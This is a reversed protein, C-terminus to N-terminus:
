QSKKYKLIKFDKKYLKYIKEKDTKKLKAKQDSKNEHTYKIEEM